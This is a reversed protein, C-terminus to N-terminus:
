PQTRIPAQFIHVQRQRGILTEFKPADRYPMHDHLAAIQRDGTGVSVAELDGRPRGVAVLSRNGSTRWSLAAELAAVDEAMVELTVDPQYGLGRPHDKCGPGRGARRSRDGDHQAARRQRAIRYRGGADAAVRDNEQFWGLRAIQNGTVNVAVAGPAIGAAVGPRAGEPLFDEATFFDFRRKTKNLVRGYFDGIRDADL